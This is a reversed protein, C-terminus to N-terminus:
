KRTSRMKLSGLMLLIGLIGYVMRGAFVSGPVSFAPDLMELTKPYESFFAIPILAAGDPLPLYASLFVVGILGYVAWGKWMGVLMGLGAVFLLSPVLVMVAPLFWEGFPINGFRFLAGLFGAGMLCCIVAMLFIGTFIAGCRVLRYIGPPVPSASTLVQTMKEQKSSLFAIFFLLIASLLPLLSSLYFGFSWPSFPATNAIGLIVSGRLLIYSYWLTLLMLAAFFRNMLLKKLEYRFIKIM